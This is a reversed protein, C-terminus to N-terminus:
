RGTKWSRLRRFIRQLDVLLSLWVTYAIRRYWVLNFRLQASKNELLFRSHFEALDTSLEKEQDPSLPLKERYREELFNDKAEKLRSNHEAWYEDLFKWTDQYYQRYKRELSTEDKNPPFHLPRINSLPKKHSSRPEVSQVTKPRTQGHRPNLEQDIATSLHCAGVLVPEEFIRTVCPWRSLVFIPCQYLFRM